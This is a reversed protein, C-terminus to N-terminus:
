CNNEYAIYAKNVSLPFIRKFSDCYMSEFGNKSYPLRALCPGGCLLAYKCDQCGKLNGVNRKFWHDRVESWHIKDDPLYTGITFEKRGVLELCTYIDGYPDFLFCGYQSSCSAGYLRCRSKNKLSYYFHHYIGYDHTYIEGNYEEKHMKNLEMVSSIYDIDNLKNTNYEFERLFSSKIECNPNQTYGLLDFQEKLSMFDHFNNKDTNVKLLVYIGRDLLTGVNTVIKDFSNGEVYHFRRANHHKMNGDLTIQFFSFYESSLIEKFYDVDYGNSIVKFTYGLEAGKRVIYKVIEKNERLLPEGGFLLLQKFHLKRQPEIKIIADYAKDVMERTFVQKSWKEGDKSIKNEFCYPCRFNCDYSVIFGFTKYLKSQAQHLKDAFEIVYKKEEADSRSTLYGRKLFFQIVDSSFYSNLPYEKMQNWINGEVIDIAGTYGHVLMYKGENGELRVPITYSSLRLKEM